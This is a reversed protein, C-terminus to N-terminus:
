LSEFKKWMEGVEDPDLTSYCTPVLSFFSLTLFPLNHQQSGERIWMTPNASASSSTLSVICLVTILNNLQKKHSVMQYQSAVRRSEVKIDLAASTFLSQPTVGEFSCVEQIERGRERGRQSAWRNHEILIKLQFIKEKSLIM